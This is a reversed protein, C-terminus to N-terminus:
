RETETKTETQRYRDRKGKITKTEREYVSMESNFKLYTDRTKREANERERYIYVDAARFICFLFKFERM